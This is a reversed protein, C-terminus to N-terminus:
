VAWRCYWYPYEHFDKVLGSRVPNNLCYVVVENLVEDKRIAHDHYQAQWFRGRRNLLVNIKRATYSKLSHMLKALTGSHLEAIFHFHDPMVVVVELAMKERNELWLLSSLIIEATESQTFVPKREHVVTTLLYIQNTISARGKRLLSSGKSPKM